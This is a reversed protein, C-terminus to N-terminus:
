SIQRYRFLEFSEMNFNPIIQHENAINLYHFENVAIKFFFATPRFKPARCVFESGNAGCCGV